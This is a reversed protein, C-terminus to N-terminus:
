LMSLLSVENSAVPCFVGNIQRPNPPIPKISKLVIRVQLGCKLVTWDSMVMVDRKAIRADVAGRLTNHLLM